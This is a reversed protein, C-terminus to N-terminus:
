EGPKSQGMFHAAKEEEFLEVACEGDQVILLIMLLLGLGFSGVKMIGFLPNLKFKLLNHLLPTTSHHFFYRIM